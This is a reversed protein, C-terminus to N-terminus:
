LNVTNIFEIQALVHVMKNDMFVMQNKRNSECHTLTPAQLNYWLNTIQQIEPMDTQLTVDFCM